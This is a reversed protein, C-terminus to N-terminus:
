FSLIQIVQTAETFKPFLLPLFVPALTIGLFALLISFLISANKLKRNTSGTADHPLIYQFMIGPLIGLLSLFQVGLQYNGLLAFGLLPAVILKDLTTSFARSIDMIYSNIIFGSRTKLLSFDIKHDRFGEYIRYTPLFFSISLGLIVGNPGIIHNLVIALVTGLIKQGIMYVSYQKYLKQGILEYTALGFIVNGIVFLSVGIDEFIFFLIVSAIVSSSIAISYIAPQIRVGKATYVLLINGSGLFSIVTAISSVAILYSIEGYHTTGLIRAIYLWFLGPIVSSVINAFGITTLGKFKTIIVKIRDLSSTM